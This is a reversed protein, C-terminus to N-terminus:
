IDEGVFNSAKIESLRDKMAKLRFQNINENMKDAVKYTITEMDSYINERVGTQLPKEYYLKEM